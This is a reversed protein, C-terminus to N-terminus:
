CKSGALCRRPEKENVKHLSANSRHCKCGAKEKAGSWLQTGLGKANEIWRSSKNDWRGQGNAKKEQQQLGLYGQVQISEVLPIM